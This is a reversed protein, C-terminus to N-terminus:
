KKLLQKLQKATGMLVDYVATFIIKLEFSGFKLQKIRSVLFRKKTNFQIYFPNKKSNIAGTISSDHVRYHLLPEPIKEIIYNDSLVELWLGYDESHKQNTAYQYQKIIKSRMMVTPHAICCHWLMANKIHKATTKQQDLTWHGVVLGEENILQIQTALIVTNTNKELWQVQKEIRTSLCIDDADIRAIYKGKALALGKNLSFILGENKSNNILQIRSDTYTDIIKTTGDTSGDNIILLEFNQYTQNLLSDITAHIYKECNYAPLVISVLPNMTQLILM